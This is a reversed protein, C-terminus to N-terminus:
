KVEEFRGDCFEHQPRAWLKGDTGRYVVLTDGEEVFGASVQLEARGVETYTTGRGVHRWLSSGKYTRWKGDNMIRWLEMQKAVNFAEEVQAHDAETVRGTQIARSRSYGWQRTVGPADPDRGLLVFYPEDPLARDYCDGAQPNNKTSM